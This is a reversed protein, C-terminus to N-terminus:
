SESSSSLIRLCLTTGNARLFFSTSQSNAITTDFRLSFTSSASATNIGDTVSFTLTGDAPTAEGVSDQSKPEVTFIFGNASDKEVYAINNFASNGTASFTVPFGESDRAALTIVTATGNKYATADTELAYSGSPSATFIPTTNIIAINFWGQGTHIYLKDSDEAFGLTGANNSDYSSPLLGASDYATLGVVALSGTSTITNNKVAQGLSTALDRNRSEPM